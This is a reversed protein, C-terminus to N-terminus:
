EQGALIGARALKVSLEAEVENNTVLICRRRGGDESNLLCTAHLTTGSGGFFDLIIAEKREGLAISLCDRVAYLSKPFPFLGREGLFAGVLQTGYTAGATHRGRYWITKPTTLRPKVQLLVQGREGRGTVEIRGEEIAEVTGEMLYRLTWTARKKDWSAAYAFGREALWMLRRGDVRWIGLKGDSRIPWAVRYGDILRPRNEEDDGELPKGVGVIRHTYSDVLVPYCLNLRSRRYWANGRRIPREWEVAEQQTETLGTLMDDYSRAPQPQGFFCFFAYEEVRSFGEGSAGSPNVCITVMQRRADLFLDELLVGLHFVELEGITVILVGDPALLRRALLLRRRMMSLWKSHRYLDTKDVYDNNYKWDRARNNYPPDIYIVDVLGEYGYLLLQLAHYNEANIVTHWPKESSQDITDVPTLAPYMPEGFAKVVIVDTREVSEEPGGAEPAILVERENVEAVVRYSSDGDKKVVRSGLRPPHKPLRILEPIHEEFVLGFKKVAKLRVLEHTLNDRLGQDAVQGILDEIAAM